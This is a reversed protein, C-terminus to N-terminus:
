GVKAIVARAKRDNQEAYTQTIVLSSHGLVISAVELGFDRRLYTAANHRLRHPGWVPIGERECLRHIQRRYSATTYQRAITRSTQPVNPKQNPRRGRGKTALRAKAEANSERPSFLPQDTPRETTIFLRLIRQAKPGFYLVRAKGHHATKHQKEDTSGDYTVTWCRRDSTDLDCARLRILEDARAGTLLQLDILARVPRTMNRRNRIRRIHHRPVPKVRDRDPAEGRALAEVTALRRYVRESCLEHSAAWKFAQRVRSVQKNIHSRSWGAEIMSQRVARLRKPGFAEAPESGYLKRVHRIARRITDIESDSYRQAAHRIYAVCVITVTNDEAAPEDSAQPLRRGNSLM